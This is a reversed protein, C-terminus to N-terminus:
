KGTLMRVMRKALTLNSVVFNDSDEVQRLQLFISDPHPNIQEITGDCRKWYYRGEEDVQFEGVLGGVYLYGPKMQKAKTLIREEM